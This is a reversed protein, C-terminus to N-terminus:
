TRIPWGSQPEGEVPGSLAPSPMPDPLTRAQGTTIPGYGDLEGVQAHEGALASIPMTVNILYGSRTRRCRGVRM